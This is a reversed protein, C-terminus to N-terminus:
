LWKDTFLAISFLLSTWLAANVTTKYLWYRDEPLVDTQRLRSVVGLATPLAALTILTSLPLHALSVICLIAIYVIVSIIASADLAHPTSLNVVLTRKHMLWDRYEHVLNYNFFVLMSLLGFPISVWLPLWSLTHSQTYYNGVLPLLGYALFVGIEGLAWGRYSYQVPPTAYTYALLFSLGHFFLIPWGILMTLWLSCLISATLLWYALSAVTSPQVLGQMMLGYGTILPELRPTIETANADKHAHTYDSYAALAQMGLALLLVSGLSFLLALSNFKGLEWWALIAGSLAPMALALASHSQTVRLGIEFASRPRRHMAKYLRLRVADIQSPANVGQQKPLQSLPQTSTFNHDTVQV